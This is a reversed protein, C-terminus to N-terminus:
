GKGIDVDRNNGRGKGEMEERKLVVMLQCWEDCCVCDM